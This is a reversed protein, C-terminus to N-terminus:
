VFLDSFLCKSPNYRLDFEHDASYLPYATLMDVSPFTNENEYQSIPAWKRLNCKTEEEVLPRYGNIKILEWRQGRCMKHERHYTNQVDYNNLHFYTEYWQGNRMIALRQWFFRKLLGKGIVGAILEDNYNLIPDSEGGSKYNVAFMYPYESYNHSDLQWGGVGTINGKYFAIKPTFQSEAESESTNARNEPVLVIMQPAVGTIDKFMQMDCHMLPSFFRNEFDKKENIFREPFAFKGAGIKVQYRDQVVKLIGDQSDDKYKFTLQRAYDRYLSLTSKKLLDQKDDWNLYDNTFYGGSKTGLDNNLSYDHTPEIIIEKKSPDANFMLNFNDCVGKFFDLFKVKQFATFADFYITGGIPIRLYSIKFEKFWVYTKTDFGGGNTQTVSLKMRVDDSPAVQINRWIEKGYITANEKGSQNFVTDTAIVSGNLTWEAELKSTGGNAIDYAYDLRAYFAIEVTGYHPPNYHWVQQVTGTGYFYDNNNNYAGPATDSLPTDIASSQNGIVIAPLTLTGAYVGPAPVGGPPLNDELPGLARFEHVKVADINLFNGWVWPLVMRRFYETNLFTSSIKYGISKFAWYILFYVSLSPRLYDMSMNTDNNAFSGRYRVPAFVYWLAEDTGDFDWSGKINAELLEITKGKLIEYLTLDGISLSWDGNDGYIDFKYTEPKDSHTAEDLVAKGKLLEVGNCEIYAPQYNKFVEGTTLDEVGPNHYTNAVDDNSPSAPVVIGFATGSKKIQFNGMDELQYDIAVPIDEAKTYSTSYQGISVKVYNNQPM